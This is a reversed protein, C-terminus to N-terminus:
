RGLAERLKLIAGPTRPGLGLVTLAPLTLFRNAEGAPTLAFEPRTLVTAIGGLTTSHEETMLLLDPAAAIVAERSMPKFGEFTAVNVAGAERIVEDSTTGTGAVLPASDRISLVFMVRPPPNRTPISGRLAALEAKFASAVAGAEAPMELAAGIAEIKPAVDDLTDVDPLIVVDVGANKIQDLAVPPGASPSALLLDPTLSLVGEASLRRFYGIQPLSQAKLPYRSTEDVGAIKDAANMLFVIETAVGDAIAVRDASVAPTGTVGLGIFCLLIWFRTM